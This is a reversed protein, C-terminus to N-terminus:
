RIYVSAIYSPKDDKQTYLVHKEGCECTKEYKQPSDIDEFKMNNGGKIPELSFRVGVDQDVILHEVM